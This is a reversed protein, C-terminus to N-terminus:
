RRGEGGFHREIITLVAAGAESEEQLAAIHLSKIRSQGDWSRAYKRRAEVYIAAAGALDPPMLVQHEDAEIPIMGNM